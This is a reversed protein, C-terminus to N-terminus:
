QKLLAALENPKLPKKRITLEGSSERAMARLPHLLSDNVGETGFLTLRAPMLLAALGGIDGYRLAGPLAMEDSTSKVSAFSFGNLDTIVHEVEVGGVASALLVIPGAKGTGVISVKGNVRKMAQLLTVVDRVRESLLPRNYCYTLGAYNTSVEGRIKAVEAASKTHAFYEGAVLTQGRAALSRGLEIYAKSNTLDSLGSGDIWLVAHGDPNGSAEFSYRVVHADGNATQRIITKVSGEAPGPEIASAADVTTDFMTKAAAGVIKRYKKADSLLDAYTAKAESKMAARLDAANMVDVPKELSGYVTMEKKSLPKFDREEIPEAVKLGLHENFWGYMMHRSHSNYNHKFQPWCKADVLSPKNYFSYVQKLEPLGIKEIDITWDDAGSMAMPRPAFLAAISVNNIGLRLYSANECNCGGQMNTSVMVAPFAVDPREDLAALMFTQTGGGSAGTVGIRDPDVEPLEVLFDLARISNWTQLGMKNTLWLLADTDNFEKRHIIATSDAYGVMDYHFVVCGMRALQVFRAQVPFRAAAPITEANKDLQEKAKAEGADYFRGNAWHGHPCLIGPAKGELNAPRYVVGTVYHGPRSRFMAHQVTYGDREIVQGLQTNLETKVPLPWLGNSVLLQERIQQREAEWQQLSRPPTWPHLKDYIDRYKSLRSDSPLSTVDAEQASTFGTSFVLFTAVPIALRNM